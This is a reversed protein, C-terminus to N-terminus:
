TKVGVMISPPEPIGGEGPRWLHLTHPHMNVYQSQRPHLQMVVEEPEWFLDKVFCMERWLPCRKQDKVSVSVHDWGMGDSSLVVLRSKGFPIIFAGMNGDRTTSAYAGDPVRYPEVRPDPRIKM